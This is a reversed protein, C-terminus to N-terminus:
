LAARVRVVAEDFEVGGEVFGLRLRPRAVRALRMPGAERLKTWDKETTVIADHKAARFAINLVTRREYPDHDRLVMPTVEAGAARAGAMFAAPNGIACVALVRKGRLWAVPEVSEGGPESVALREWEHRAVGIRVSPAAAAISRKLDEVREATVSEAHTVVAWHGRALSSAPERMWGAPLLRGPFERTADVLVVDLDRAIRRHQFGDDLVVVDVAEGEPTGFLRMLGEARAPQAVIPVGPFREQNLAAEDSLGDARRSAGYGRMAICPRRGAALLLAVVHAVMPTKGTGGVSLNGISIVARDFRVVGRGADFRRNRRSVAAAYVRAAANGLPGRLPAGHSSSRLGEGHNADSDATAM